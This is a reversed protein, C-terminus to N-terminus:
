TRLTLSAIRLLESAVKIAENKMKEDGTLAAEIRSQERAIRRGLRAKLIRLERLRKLHPRNLALLEILYAAPGKKPILEGDTAVQFYNARLDGFPDIFGIKGDHSSDATTSEWWDSKLLNCRCCAHHFNLPDDELHEFGPRSYPRFHDLQMADRGGMESEHSDCYVCREKCDEAIEHQYYKRYHAYSYYHGKTKTTYRSRRKLSGFFLPLAM